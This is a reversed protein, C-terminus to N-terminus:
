KSCPSFLYFIYLILFVFILFLVIRLVWRWFGKRINSGFHFERKTSQQIIFDTDSNITEKTPDPMWHSSPTKDDDPIQPIQEPILREGHAVTTNMIVSGDANLFRVTHLTNHDEETEPEQAIFDTNANIIVYSPDINWAPCIKDNFVPLKPIQSTSLTTGHEVETQVLLRGDPLLFRVTHKTSGHNEPHVARYDRDATITENLPIGDWSPCVVGNIVPLQPIDDPKIKCNHFVKFEKIVSGDPNLFRILHQVNNNGPDSLQETYQASFILDGTVQAGVPERDWGTFVFGEEAEVNPVQRQLIKTGFKKKLLLPSNSTGLTGLDFRVSHTAAAPILETFLTAGRASNSELPRMGWVTVVVQEGSCYVNNEYEGVYKLSLELFNADDTRGNSKLKEVVSRYHNISKSLLEKYYDYDDGMQDLRCFSYNCLPTYWYILEEGKLQDVESFPLALLNRYPEDINQEVIARINDYRKWNPWQGVGQEDCIRSRPTVCLPMYGIVTPTPM